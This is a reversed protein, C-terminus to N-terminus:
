LIVKNEFIEEVAFNLGDAIIEGDPTVYYVVFKALNTMARTITM